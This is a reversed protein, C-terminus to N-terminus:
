RKKQIREGYGAVLKFKIGDSWMEVKKEEKVKKTRKGLDVIRM